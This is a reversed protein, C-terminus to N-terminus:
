LLLDMDEVLVTANRFANENVTQKINGNTQTTNKMINALLLLLYKSVNGRNRRIRPMRHTNYTKVMIRIPEKLLQELFVTYTWETKKM